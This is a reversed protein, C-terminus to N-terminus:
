YERAETKPGLCGGAEVAVTLIRAALNTEDALDHILQEIASAEAFGHTRAIQAAAVLHRQRGNLDGRYDRCIAIYLLPLEADSLRRLGTFRETCAHFLSEASDVHGVALDLCGDVCLRSALLCEITPRPLLVQQRRAEAFYGELVLYYLLNNEAVQASYQDRWRDLTKQGRVLTKIYSDTSLLRQTEAKEVEVCAAKHLDFSSFVQIAHECREESLPLDRGEDRLLAASLWSVEGKVYPEFRGSEVIAVAQDMSGRALHISSHIRMANGLRARSFIEGEVLV